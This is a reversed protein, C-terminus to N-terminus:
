ITNDNQLGEEWILNEHPLRYCDRIHTVAHVAIECNDGGLRVFECTYSWLTVKFKVPINEAFILDDVKVSAIINL